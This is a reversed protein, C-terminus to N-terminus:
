GPTTAFLGAPYAGAEIVARQLPEVLRVLRESDAAGLREWVRAANTDTRDEVDVRLREGADSLHQGDPTLLGRRSLDAVADAWERESWGRMRMVQDAAFGRGTATHTVLASIGDLGSEVLAAVHGDGRWERLISLAHWLVMLPSEPWDLAAHAAGLPRGASTIFAAATRALDAAQDVETSDAAPGLLRRLGAEVGRRRAAQVAAPTALAWAAPIWRHVARPSFSYFTAVVTPASVAGMAAARSAFYGMRGPTLGVDILEGLTEPAFYGASHFKDSAEHVARALQAADTM